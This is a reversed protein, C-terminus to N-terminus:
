EQEETDLISQLEKQLEEQLEENEEEDDSDQIFLIKERPKLEKVYVEHAKM